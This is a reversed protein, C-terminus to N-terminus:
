VSSTKNQLWLTITGQAYSLGEPTKPFELPDTKTTDLSM